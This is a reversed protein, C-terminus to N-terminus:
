IRIAVIVLMLVVLIALFTRLTNWLVWRSEFAERAQKLAEKSLADLNRRQLQNNLPINIVVTPLQVGLLYITASLIVFVRDIGQLYFFSLLGLMLIALVSGSWVLLFLPHNNQIISDMVKFAQLFGHDDLTKIGPMVIIAFTFVLGAVLGCLVISITLATVLALM